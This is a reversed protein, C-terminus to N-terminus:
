RWRRSLPSSTETERVGAPRAQISWWAPLLRLVEPRAFRDDILHVSGQDTPARIVRGAAQVVKRIGPFLYTCDHGSGPETGGSDAGSSAGLAADLRRRLAENVPNVQPLGLTAIFAGILRTGTLDIGEGFVGGLVAFGIGRGDPTFRALFAAREAEDMRRAQRWAPIHAHGASFEALVQELYDFSSFFAIYNGPAEAFRTGILRAIPALSQARHLWRTSVSRVIHVDLQEPRFPAPVDLWATDAPLGLLATYFRAPSLTASFLVVTQAAAFRPALFPAPLANRLTLTSGSRLGAPGPAAHFSIDFLSHSGFSDLLRTFQLVDFHFQLLEADVSTGGAAFHEGLVASIDRLLVALRPSPPALESYPETRPGIHPETHPKVLRLWHRHLRELPRQAAPPASARVRRLQVSDLSASYMSRAREVLNHAEDVLVGCRWGDALTLGHLLASADFFHNYDAVIVDCWRALEQGLHYPCVSHALAIDRLAERTLRPQEVAASRAAPLRDFFGRALPCSAGHCAKDPHECAKERAVLELVRLPRAPAATAALAELAGFALARGSGKATLFFIKDLGTQAQAQGPGAKLMAFLTAVTKGIGTPAQALLCRRHRAANFVAKALERQGARFAAHPFVLGRLAEDRAARHETEREAWVLFRECLTEFFAQLEAASCQEQLATAEQQRGVDFYVLAVTLGPLDSQRCLLAAYVKAQAWHLHRQNAPMSALDGRFTKVEELTQREADYGDARGRVVLHRYTGSLAVESRYAPGRQAAVAQHGAMGQQATPASSFQLELDGHRAAFECLARVAVTYPRNVSRIDPANLPREAKM